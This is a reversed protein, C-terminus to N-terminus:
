AALAQYHQFAKELKTHYANKAYLPGNYASAFETWNKARLHDLLSHGKSTNKQIFRGFADLHDAERHQMAAVFNQVNGYGLDKAHYGMIQFLGWSASSLAADTHIAKARELRAYEAVGGSYSKQNYKEFIIDQNGALYGIPNVGYKKLQSWFVHGEFLIKPEMGLFGSGNSEVDYVARVLPIEIQYKGSFDILDKQSLWKANIEELLQPNTAILKSWTKEGVVGDVVLNNAEQYQKVVAKTGPGFDGDVNVTYGCAKLYTQLLTTNKASSQGSSITPLFFAM